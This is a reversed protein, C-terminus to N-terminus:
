DSNQNKNNRKECLILLYKIFYIKNLNLEILYGFNQAKYQLLM